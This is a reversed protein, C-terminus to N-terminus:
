PRSKRRKELLLNLVEDEEISRRDLDPHLTPGITWLDDILLLGNFSAPVDHLQERLDVGIARGHEDERAIVVIKAGVADMRAVLRNPWGAYPWQRDLPIVLASNRCAEPTIAFWGMKVYASTCARAGEESFSWVEPFQEQLRAVAALSAFFGDGRAAVNRNTAKLAAAFRDAQEPDDGVLRYLLPKGKAINVVEDLTLLKGRGKGRLPFSEGRDATYGYGVDLAKLQALSHEGVPGEGNTRCDLTADAFAVFQGDKTEVVPVEVVGAALHVSAQVAERTHDLYPHYPTEIHAAPCTGPELTARDFWQHVGDHALLQVKGAPMPALWSANLFTLVLIYFAVATPIWSLLKRM